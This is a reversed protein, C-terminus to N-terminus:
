LRSLFSTMAVNFQEPRELNPLHGARPIVALEANPILACIREADALPTLTDEEGVIVLTPLSLGQLVPTSDPRHMMRLVAGRIAHTSQQKIVRRLYSEVTPSGELTTRGLLKPLMERAIGPAGERELVALTTRRNARGESTDAVARTDALILGRVLGPAARLLAFSVYGGMSCGGLVVSPVALERLLDIVDAAYDDMSVSEPEPDITSGGFGRMDPAIFRWGDPVSKFQPEWMLGSLPFAHVLVVVKEGAASTASDYYAITRDGVHLYQRHM